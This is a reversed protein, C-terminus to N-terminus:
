VIGALATAAVSEELQEITKEVAKRMRELRFMSKFEWKYRTATM